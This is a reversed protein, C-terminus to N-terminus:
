LARAARASSEVGQAMVPDVATAGTVAAERCAGTWSLRTEAGSSINVMTAGMTGAGPVGGVLAALINGVGQARLERNSDHRSHTRADM